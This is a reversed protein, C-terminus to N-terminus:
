QIMTRKRCRVISEAYVRHDGMAGIQHHHTEGLWVILKVGVFIQKLREVIPAHRYLVPSVQIAIADKPIICIAVAFNVQAFKVSAFVNAEGITIISARRLLRAHRVRQLAHGVTDKNRQTMAVHHGFHRLGIQTQFNRVPLQAIPLPCPGCATGKAQSGTFGVAKIHRQADRRVRRIAHVFPRDIQM